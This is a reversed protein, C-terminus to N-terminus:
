QPGFLHNERKFEENERMRKLWDMRLGQGRLSWVTHSQSCSMAPVGMVGTGGNNQVQAGAMRRVPRKGDTNAAM